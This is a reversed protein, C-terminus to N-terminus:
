GSRTTWRASSRSSPTQAVLRQGSSRSSSASCAGHALALRRLDLVAGVLEAEGPQELPPQELEAPLVGNSPSIVPASRGRAQEGAEALDELAEERRAAEGAVVELQVREARREDAAAAAPSGGRRGSRPARRASRGCSPLTSSLGAQVRAGLEIAVELVRDLDEAETRFNVICTRLCYRGDLIANSLYVRGDLQLESLLRTNLANLQEEDEVRDPRYRFCCISLGSAILGFEPQEEVRAALYSALEIDHEIRRAYATRGHALLSVWVKLADFGRSFQPGRFGLNVGHELEDEEHVYSAYVEFSDALCQLDRM